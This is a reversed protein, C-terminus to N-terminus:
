NKVVSKGNVYQRVLVWSSTSKTYRGLGPTMMPMSVLPVPFTWLRSVLPSRAKASSNKPARLINMHVSSFSRRVVSPM